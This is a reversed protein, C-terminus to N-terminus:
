KKFARSAILGDGLFQLVEDNEFDEEKIIRDKFFPFQPGYTEVIQRMEEALGKRMERIKRFEDQVDSQIMGYIVPIITKYIALDQEVVLVSAYSIFPLALYFMLGVFLGYKWSVLIAYIAYTVPVLVFGVIIKYSAIVDKGEVKVNSGKLAKEAEKRGLYKAIGGIPMNLILGPLSLILTMILFLIRQALKWSSMELTQSQYDKLGYKLLENNYAQIKASIKKIPEQERIKMYGEVFRRCLGLYQESSMEMGVPKYLRKATQIIKMSESDPYNVTVAKLRETILNLLQGCATKKDTKYTQVMLTSITIPAGYEMCVHSRFRHGSFYTMGCPIITLKLNPNRQLAGLAMITVGAKLPLLSVRDHSGGEPFIGICGNHDLTDWVTNYLDEQNLNPFIKFAHESKIPKDFNFKVVLQTDSLVSIIVPSSDGLDKINISENPKVDTTFSTGKGTLILKDDVKDVSVITGKGSRAEDQPRRVPISKMLKAFFGVMFKTLSKAAIIFGIERKNHTLLMIPDVFQNQHNGVFIVPGESPINEEGIVDIDSFFIHLVYYFLTKVVTYLNIM